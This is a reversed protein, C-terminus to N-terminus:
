RREGEPQEAALTEAEVEDDEPDQGAQEEDQGAQGPLSAPGRRDEPDAVTAADLLADEEEADEDVVAGRRERRREDADQWSRAAAERPRRLFLISLLMAILAALLGALVLGIGVASLVWWLVLWLALRIVSFLLVSRM